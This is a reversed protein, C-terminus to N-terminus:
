GSEHSLPLPHDGSERQAADEVQWRYVDETVQELESLNDPGLEQYFHCLEDQRLHNRAALWPTKGVINHWQVRYPEQLGPNAREMIYLILASPRWTRGGYLAGERAAM